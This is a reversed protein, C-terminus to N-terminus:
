VDTPEGVVRLVDFVTVIGVLRGAKVVPARHIRREMLVQALQTIEMEPPVSVALPTMIDKVSTEALLESDLGIQGPLMVSGTDPAVYFPDSVGLVDEALGLSWWNEETASTETLRATLRVVDTRSVVGVVMGDGSVVPVGSIGEEDLRQILERVRAVERISIVDSEM